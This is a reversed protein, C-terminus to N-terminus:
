GSFQSLEFHIFYKQIDMFDFATFSNVLNANKKKLYLSYSLQSVTM